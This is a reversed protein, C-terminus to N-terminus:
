RAVSAPLALFRGYTRAAADLATRDGRDPRVFFTPRVVVARKEITRQWTGVVQGRRVIVPQLVGGGANVRVAFAPDLIDTRDRYAVTFEDWAPLLYAAATPGRSPGSSALWFTRDGVRESVLATHAGDLGVRADAITLGSWWAFDHVTAPGHSTFYRRALEGLAEDRELDRAAPLWEELLALTHQKGERHGFCLVGTQALYSLLHLGRSGDTAIGADNWVDYLADRRLRRGGVLAREAAGASRTFVTDDLELQRYRSRAGAIVRPTLLRTMWRADEAAVFHLTGRMPWTRVIERREIAAEVSAETAGTTRLGIAWLAGLFDQAQVAGLWRVVDAPADFTPRGIHQSTLRARGINM